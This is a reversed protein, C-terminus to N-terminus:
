MKKIVTVNQFVKTDLVEGHSVNVSEAYLSDHFDSKISGWSSRSGQCMQAGDASATWVCQLLETSAGFWWWCDFSHLQDSESLRILGKTNIHNICQICNQRRDQSQDIKPWPELSKRRCGTVNWQEGVGTAAKWSMVCERVLVQCRQFSDALVCRWKIVRQTGPQLGSAAIM